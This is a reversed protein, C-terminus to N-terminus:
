GNQDTGTEGRRGGDFWENREGPKRETPPEGAARWENELQEYDLVQPRSFVASYSNYFWPGPTAQKEMADLHNLTADSLDTAPRPTMIPWEAVVAADAFRPM